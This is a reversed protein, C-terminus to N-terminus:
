YTMCAANLLGVTISLGALKTSVAMEGRSIREAVLPYFRRFIQYVLLQAIGAIAGWLLFDIFSVSNATASALPLAFGVFAASFVLSAAVNNERIQTVEDVPTMRMYLWMFVLLMVISTGFYILFPVVGSLYYLLDTM